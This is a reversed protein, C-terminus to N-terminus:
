TFLLAIWIFGQHCPKCAARGVGGTPCWALSGSINLLLAQPAKTGNGWGPCAEAGEGLWPTDWAWDSGVRPVRTVSSCLHWFGYQLTGMDGSGRGICAAIRCGHFRGCLTCVSLWTWASDMGPSIRSVCLPASETAATLLSSCQLWQSPFTVSFFLLLGTTRQELPTRCLPFIHKEKKM